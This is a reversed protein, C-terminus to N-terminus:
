ISPVGGIRRQRDLFGEWSAGDVAYITQPVFGSDFATQTLASNIFQMPAVGPHRWRVGVNGTAVQGGRAGAPTWPSGPQRRNIRGPAGPYSMPVNVAEMQGTVRNRRQTMKRAGIRAARRFVLVQTRGDETVRVQAKPNTRRLSGDADTLWMPITKGALSRMTFPRTGREMFWTQPDPFYVGFYREDFVPQLRSATAGTVRPMLQKALFTASVALHEASRKDLDALWMVMRDPRGSAMQIEPSTMPM